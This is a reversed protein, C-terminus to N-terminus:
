NGNFIYKKFSIKITTGTCFSGSIIEIKAQHSDAIEKVISLGLGSGNNPSGSVRYFRKFVNQIENESIGIGNDEIILKLLDKDDIIKIQIKGNYGSYCISNSLLNGILEEILTEDCDIYIPYNPVNLSINIKKELAKKAWYKACQKVIFNLDSVKRVSEFNSESKALILLQSVLHVSRNTAEKIDILMPKIEDYNNLSLTYDINLKLGALPTRLQHAANEVFQKQSKLSTDLKENAEQLSNTVQKIKYINFGMITSSILYIVLSFLDFDNEISFSNPSDLFFLSTAINILISIIGPYFGCLTFILFTAPFIVLFPHEIVQYSINFGIFLIAIALIYNLSIKQINTM